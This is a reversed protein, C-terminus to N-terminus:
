RRVYPNYGSAHSGLVVEGDRRYAEEAEEFRLAGTPCTAVCAPELGKETRSTCLDCKGLPFVPLRMGQSLVGFPCALVCSRCGTCRSLNRRVTGDEDKTM